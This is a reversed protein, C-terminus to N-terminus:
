KKRFQRLKELNTQVYINSIQRGDHEIAVLGVPTSGSYSIVAPLGNAIITEQSYNPLLYLKPVTRLLMTSVKEKGYVPKLAATLRQGNVPIVRGGGDGFFVIEEKLLEILEGLNGEAVAALFNNLMKEHVKLDVEFRRNDKGLNAKARSFIQRCSGETQDFIAALEAYDYAFIEKLLFIARERPTLKEMVVMLGFSLAHYSEVKTQWKNGEANLLPEPLWVGVYKERKVRASNLYNICKHTVMKVLYAKRNSIEGTQVERWKLYTDQLLDEADKVSGTMNYAISFLLNRYEFFIETKQDM